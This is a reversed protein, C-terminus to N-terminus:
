KLNQRTPIREGIDDLTTSAVDILLTRLDQNAPNDAAKRALFEHLRAYRCKLRWTFVLESIVWIQMIGFVFLAVATDGHAASITIAGGTGACSTLAAGITRAPNSHRKPPKPALVTVIPKNAVEVRLTSSALDSTDTSTAATAQTRGYTSAPCPRADTRHRAHGRGKRPYTRKLLM